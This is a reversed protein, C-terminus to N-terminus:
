FMFKRVSYANNQLSWKILGEESGVIQHCVKTWASFEEDYLDNQVAEFCINKELNFYNRCFILELYHMFWM